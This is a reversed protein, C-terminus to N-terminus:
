PTGWAGEDNNRLLRRGECGCTEVLSTRGIVLITVFFNSSERGQMGIGVPDAGMLYRVPAPLNPNIKGDTRFAGSRRSRRSPVESGVTRSQPGNRSLSESSAFTM